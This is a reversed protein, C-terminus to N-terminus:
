RIIIKTTDRSHGVTATVFYVGAGVRRGQGDRGFWDLTHKGESMERDLVTAVRSGDVAFVEVSVRDAEPLTLELRAHGSRAIPNRTPSVSLARTLPGPDSAGSVTGDQVYILPGVSSVKQLMQWRGTQYGLDDIAEFVVDQWLVPETALGADLIKGHLAIGFEEDDLYGTGSTYSLLFPVQTGEERFMMREIYPRCSSCIDVCNASECSLSIGVVHQRTTYEDLANRRWVMGAWELNDSAHGMSVFTSIGGNVQALMEDARESAPQSHRLIPLKTGHFATSLWDAFEVALESDPPGDFASARDGAHRAVPGGVFVNIGLSYDIASQYAIDLDELSSCPIRTYPVAIRQSGWPAAIRGDVPCLDGTCNEDTDENYHYAVVVNTPPEGLESDDGPDGVITLTPTEDFFRSHGNQFAWANWALNASLVDRLATRADESSTGGVLATTKGPVYQEQWEKARQSWEAISSYIAHDACLTTDPEGRFEGSFQAYVEAGSLPWGEADLPWEGALPNGSLLEATAVLSGSELIVSRPASRHEIQRGFQHPNELIPQRRWQSLDAPDEDLGFYGTYSHKTGPDDDVEVIEWHPYTRNPTVEYFVKRGNGGAPNPEVRQVYDPTRDRDNFGLVYYDTTREETATWYVERGNWGVTGWRAVPENCSGCLRNYGENESSLHLKITSVDRAANDVSGELGDSLWKDCGLVELINKEDADASCAGVSGDYAFVGTAGVGNYTGVYSHSHCWGLIGIASADMAPLRSEAGDRELGVGFSGGSSIVATIEELDWGEAVLDAVRVDLSDSNDYYEVMVRGDSGHTSSHHLKVNGHDELWDYISLLALPESTTSKATQVVAVGSVGCFQSMGYFAALLGGQDIGECALYYRGRAKTGSAEMPTAILVSLVTMVVLAGFRRGGVVNFRFRKM